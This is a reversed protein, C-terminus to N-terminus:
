RCGSAAIGDVIERTRLAVYEPAAPDGNIAFIHELGLMHLDVPMFGIERHIALEDAHRLRRVENYWRSYPGDAGFGYKLFDPKTRFGELERYLTVTKASAPSCAKEGPADHAAAGAAMSWALAAAGALCAMRDNRRVKRM